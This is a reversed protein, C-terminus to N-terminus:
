SSPDVGRRGRAATTRGPKQVRSAKGSARENLKAAVLQKLVFELRRLLDDYTIIDVVNKYKRRVVEFDRRQTASLKDDRGMIVIGSPNTIGLQFGAPLRDAFKKTLASEGAPGWRNLHYIYKEIQMVSGSLERLPIHNGRYVGETIICKDFPQKIEIVDVNGSVDVLLIDIERMSDRDFDRVPAHELASIYKPNLLLVIQLIETQWASETYTEESALMAKLRELLYQYKREEEARFLAKINHARKNLRKKVYRHFLDEADVQTDSYERVVSAVRALVYRKLEHNTPFQAVLKEYETFPIADPENGGIVIREPKLDAIVDFISTRQEATFWKWTLDASRHIFVPCGIPLVEEDFRYYEGDLEAVKFRLPPEDFIDDDQETSSEPQVLNDKRLHFTGKITLSENRDFKDQVWSDDDRPTYCLVLESDTREFEVAHRM